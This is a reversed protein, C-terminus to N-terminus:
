EEGNDKKMSKLHKGFISNWNMKSDLNLWNPTQTEGQNEINELLYKYEEGQSITRILTVTEGVGVIYITQGILLVQLSRNNGLTHSGIPLVPGNSQMMRNRKSLFRMLLYLLVIVLAFSFIFKLFLPFITPSQSDEVNKSPTSDQKDGNQITDYVSSDGAAKSGAAFATPMNSCLYFFVICVLTLRKM